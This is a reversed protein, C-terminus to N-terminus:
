CYNNTTFPLISLKLPVHCYNRFAPCVNKSSNFEQFSQWTQNQHDIVPRGLFLACRLIKKLGPKSAWIWSLNDVQKAYIECFLSVISVLAIHFTLCWPGWFELVIKWGSMFSDLTQRQFNRKQDNRWILIILGSWASDLWTWPCIQGLLLKTLLKQTGSPNQWYIIQSM